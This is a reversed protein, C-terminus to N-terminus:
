DGLKVRPDVVAYMVDTLLIGIITLMAIFMNYAMIFPVDGAKLAQYAINGIGPLDFIQETIMAGGFLGPLIGALTTVLPILTNRFVHKYIVSNESAGKARATRIYDANLVELTNTRTYRMLSGVSLITLVAVPLVLHWAQDLLTPLTGNQSELGSVPFWRLDVAFWKILLSGFFFSPFSIGIMTLITTIYDLKGYQHYASQIGLPIAIILQLVLSILSVLFSVGMNDLIVEEVPRQYKFSTGMDGKMFNGIWNIYGAVVSRIAVSASSFQRPTGDNNLEIEGDRFVNNWLDSYGREQAKDIDELNYRIYFERLEEDSVEATQGKSASYKQEVFSVPMVRVLTYLIISVCFLILIALLLRKIIYKVM